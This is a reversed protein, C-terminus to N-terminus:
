AVFGESGGRVYRVSPGQSIRPKDRLYGIKETRFSHADSLAFEAASREGPLFGDEGIFEALEPEPEPSALVAQREMEDRERQYEAKLAENRKRVQWPPRM